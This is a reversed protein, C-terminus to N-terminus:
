MAEHASYARSGRKVQLGVRSSSTRARASRRAPARSRRAGGAHHAEAEERDDVVARRLQGARDAPEIGLRELLNSENQIAPCCKRPDPAM